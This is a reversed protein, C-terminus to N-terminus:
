AHPTDSFSRADFLSSYLKMAYMDTMGSIYDACMVKFGANENQAKGFGGYFGFEYLEQFDDPYLKINKIDSFVSFLKRVINEAKYRNLLIERNEMVLRYSIEKLASIELNVGNKWILAYKYSDDNFDVPADLIFSNEKKKLGPKSKMKAIGVQREELDINLIFKSIYNSFFEKLDTKVKIHYMLEKEKSEAIKFINRLNLFFNDVQAAIKNVSDKGVRGSEKLYKNVKFHGGIDILKSEVGDEIDHTAYAIDDAANLIQCEICRSFEFFQVKATKNKKDNLFGSYKKLYNVFDKGHLKELIFIDNDYIFHKNKDSLSYPLKYKLIGDITKLSPNIGYIKNNKSDYFKKELFNLIRINQANAEFGFKGGTAKNLEENIIYEGLHGFPPHGIDHALSVAEVLDADITLGYKKNLISTIARAIQSVELSHTLRTRYYDLTFVGFVQTKNRMRRFASSHIIRDRDIQFLTRIGKEKKEKGAYGYDFVRENNM